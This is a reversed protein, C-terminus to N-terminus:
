EYEITSPPKPTLDFLVKVASGDTIRRRIRDLIEYPIEPVSATMADKSEVVRVTVIDGYLRGGDCLGTARDSMLVAFAQFPKLASVEEEVIKTAIRVKAVREPTVEGLVRIALGPGPFPMRECVEQPLGLGRAVERVEHKYLEKLPEVIRVDYGVGIQELVNHQTKVGRKTEDIDAAITGQILFDCGSDRVARKFVAYFQDRFRKRKEEPDEIGRLAHFFDDSAKVIELPIGIENCVEFVAEGEGERMLGDDIFVARLREGIARHALVACTMSDVGGSLAVMAGGQGIRERIEDIKAAILTQVDRMKRSRPSL